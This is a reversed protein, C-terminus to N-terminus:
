IIKHQTGRPVQEETVRSANIEDRKRKGRKDGKCRADTLGGMVRSQIM